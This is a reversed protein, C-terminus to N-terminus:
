KRESRVIAVLENALADLEDVAVVDTGDRTICWGFNQVERISYRPHQNETKENKKPMPSLEKKWQPWEAEIERKAARAAAIVEDYTPARDTVPSLTSADMWWRPGYERGWDVEIRRDDFVETVTGIAGQPIIISIGPVPTDVLVTVRDGVKWAPAPPGEHGSDRKMHPNGGCRMCVIDLQALALDARLKGIERPMRGAAHRADPPIQDDLLVGADRASQVAARRDLVLEDRVSKLERVEAELQEILRQALALRTAADEDVEERGAAPSAYGHEADYKKWLLQLVEPVHKEAIVDGMRCMVGDVIGLGDDYHVQVGPNGHPTCRQLVVGPPPVSEDRVPTARRVGGIAAFVDDLPTLPPLGLRGCVEAIAEDHGDDYGDDHGDDYGDDYGRDFDESM